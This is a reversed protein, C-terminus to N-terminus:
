PARGDNNAEGRGLGRRAEAGSPLRAGVLVLDIRQLPAARRCTGPVRRPGCEAATEESPAAKGLNGSGGMAAVAMMREVAAAPYCEPM